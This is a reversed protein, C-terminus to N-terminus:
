RVCSGPWPLMNSPSRKCWGKKGKFHFFLTSGNIKVHQNRLTTLGYSGYLKEYASNGVRITTEQMVSLAISIVKEKNMVKERLGARIRKRIQPLKEGFHLLRDYKTENRVQMWTSHYRYQRRGMADVGIAQLHGNAYPCIWVQEWAPPLVLKSIRELIAEDTVKKGSADTYYVGAGNKVRTFGPMTARVYRLRAAKATEMADITINNNELM